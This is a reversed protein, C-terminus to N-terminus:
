KQRFFGFHYDKFIIQEKTAKARITEDNAVAKM